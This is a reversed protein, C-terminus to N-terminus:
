EKDKHKGPHERHGRHHFIFDTAPLPLRVKAFFLGSLSFRAGAFFRSVGLSNTAEM